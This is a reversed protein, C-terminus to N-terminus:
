STIAGSKPRDIGALEADTRAPWDAVMRNLTFREPLKVSGISKEQEPRGKNAVQVNVGARKVGPGPLEVVVKTMLVDPVFARFVM